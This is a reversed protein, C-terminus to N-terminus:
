RRSGRKGRESPSGSGWSEDLWQLLRPLASRDRRFVQAAAGVWDSEVIRSARPDTAHYLAEALPISRYDQAPIEFFVPAGLDALRARMPGRDVPSPDPSVILLPRARPDLTAAEVAMSAAARSGIVLYRSTDVPAAAALARLGPLVDRAVLGHMQEERGRWTEPLPCANSVSWGSGRPEILMVAYGARVLGTALSDYFEFTEEPDMVAVVARAARGPPAAIVAGVSAGDHSTFPLRRAGLAKLIAKEENDRASIEAKLLDALRRSQGSRTAADRLIGMVDRDQFRSTLALPLLLEVCASAEGHELELLGLRYRWDRHRPNIEDLLWRQDLRMLALASDGRGLTYHAWARRARTVAFDREGTGLATRLRPELVELARAADGDAARQLLADVYADREASAGRVAVAREYCALASDPRGAREFSSGAYFFAAGRGAQATEPATAAFALLSARLAAPTRAELLLAEVAESARGEPPPSALAALALAARVVVPVLRHTIV